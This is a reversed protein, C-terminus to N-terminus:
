RMRALVKPSESTATNDLKPAFGGVRIAYRGLRQLHAVGRTSYPDRAKALFLREKNFVRWFRQHRTEPLGHAKRL